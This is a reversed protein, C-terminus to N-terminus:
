RSRGAKAVDFGCGDDSDGRQLAPPVAAAVGKVNRRGGGDDSDGDGDPPAQLRPRRRRGKAAATATAAILRTVPPVAVAAM